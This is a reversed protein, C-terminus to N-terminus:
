RSAGLGSLYHRIRVGLAFLTAAYVAAGLAAILALQTLDGLERGRLEHRVMLVIAAMAVSAAAVRWLNKLQSLLTAGIM